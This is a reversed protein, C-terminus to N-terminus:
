AGTQRGPPATRSREKIGPDARLHERPAGSQPFHCAVTHTGPHNVVLVPPLQRACRSQQSPSLTALAPCRSLFACGAVDPPGPPPDGPLVTRRRSREVVPDPLPVAALLARTYPHRPREFVEGVAGTEVTRGAYLVAVRDALYRVAALDDSALLFTRGPEQRLRLLMELLAARASIDPARLPDDLLLLEPEFALARALAVRGHAGEPLSRARAEAHAADLGVALLLERVRAEVVAPPTHRALLREAVIDAVRARPDLGHRADQPVLQVVRGLRRATRRSLTAVDQGLVDVAGAEPVGLSAVASLLTSKGAGSEGVLAVTEGRRVELDVGKLAPAFADRRGWRGHAAYSMYLDAVRLVVEPGDAFSVTTLPTRPPGGRAPRAAHTGSPPFLEAATRHRLVASRRCAAEHADVGALGARSPSDVGLLAPPAAECEPQALPCRPAFACGHAAAEPVARARAGALPWPRPEADTGPSPPATGPVPTLLPHTDLRPVSGILGVTYPMRPRSFVTEVPGTEVVRGAYLVAVRDALGAVVGPDGTALLLAAGTERRAAALAQLVQTRVTVDLGAVPEEAVLLDPGGALALAIMARRRDAASLSRPFSRAVAEPESVGVLELLEVARRRARVHPARGGDHGPAARRGEYEGVAAAIRDGVRRAAPFLPREDQLVFGIRGDPGSDPEPASLPRAPGGFLSTSGDVQCGDPALGVAALAALTHGSGSEGLLALVEGARLTFGVGDLALVPPRRKAVVTVTLGRVEMVTSM